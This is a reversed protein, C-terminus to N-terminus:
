DYQENNTSDLYYKIKLINKTNKFIELLNLRDANNDINRICEEILNIDNYKTIISEYMSLTNKLRDSDNMEEFKNQLETIKNSYDIDAQKWLPYIKSWINNLGPVIRDKNRVTDTLKIQLLQKNKEPHISRDFLTDVHFKRAEPFVICIDKYINSIVQPTFQVWLQNIYKKNLEEIEISVLPIQKIYNITDM